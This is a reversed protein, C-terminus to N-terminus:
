AAQHGSKRGFMTQAVLLLADLDSSHLRLSALYAMLAALDGSGGTVPRELGAFAESLTIGLADALQALTTLHPVREAREIMSLFSVSIGAREALEEQTLGRLKRLQNIRRGLQRSVESRNAQV